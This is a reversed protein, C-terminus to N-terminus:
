AEEAEVSVAEEGSMWKWATRLSLGLLIAVEKADVEGEQAARRLERM